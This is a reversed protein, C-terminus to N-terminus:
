RGVEPGRGDDDDLPLRALADVETRKSLLTIRVVSAVFVIIFIFLALLPLHTWRMGAYFQAFM